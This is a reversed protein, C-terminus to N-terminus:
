AIPRKQSVRRELAGRSARLNPPGRVRLLSLRQSELDLEEDYRWRRGDTPGYVGMGEPKMDRVGFKIGSGFM